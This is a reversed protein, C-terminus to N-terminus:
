GLAVIHDLTAKDVTVIQSGANTSPQISVAGSQKLADFDAITIQNDSLWDAVVPDPDLVVSGAQSADGLAAPVVIDRSSADDPVLSLLQRNFEDTTLNIM